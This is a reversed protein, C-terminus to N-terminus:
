SRSPAARRHARRATEISVPELRQGVSRSRTACARAPRRARKTPRSRARAAGGRVRARCAALELFALGRRRDALDPERMCPLFHELLVTVRDRLHQQREAVGLLPPAVQIRAVRQRRQQPEARDGDDVLVVRDRGGLDAIAVVVPERRADRLHDAGIAQHQQRVDVTEVRGIRRAVRRRRKMGSTGRMVGSISAIAPPEADSTPEPPMAVLTSAAFIATAAPQLMHTARPDRAADARACRARRASCTTRPRPTAPSPACATSRRCQQLRGALQLDVFARRFRQAAPLLRSGAPTTRTSRASRGRRYPRRARRPRRELNRAAQGRIRAAVRSRMSRGDCGPARLTARTERGRRSSGDRRGPASTLGVASSHRLRRSLSGAAVDATMRAIPASGDVRRARERERCRRGFFWASSDAACRQPTALRRSGRPWHRRGPRACPPPSAPPAARDAAARRLARRPWPARRELLDRPQSSGSRCGHDRLQVRGFPRRMSRTRTGSPTIPMM